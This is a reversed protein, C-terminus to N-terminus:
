PIPHKALELTYKRVLEAPMYMPFLSWGDLNVRHGNRKAKKILKNLVSNVNLTNYKRKFVEYGLTDPELKFFRKGRLYHAVHSNLDAVSVINTPFNNDLCFKVTMKDALKGIGGIKKDDFNELFNVVLRGGWIGEEVRNKMLEPECLYNCLINPDDIKTFHVYGYCKSLDKSMFNFVHQVSNIKSFLINSELPRNNIKDWLLGVRDPHYEAILLDKKSSSLTEVDKLEIRQPKTLDIDGAGCCFTNTYPNFVKIVKTDSSKEFMDSASASGFSLVKKNNNLYSFNNYNAKLIPNFIIMVFILFDFM